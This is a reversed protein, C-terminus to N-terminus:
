RLSPRDLAGHLAPMAEPSRSCRPRREGSRSRPPAWKALGNIRIGEPGCREARHRDDSARQRLPGIGARRRLMGDVTQRVRVRRDDCRAEAASAAGLDDRGCGAAGTTRPAIGNRCPRRPRARRRTTTHRDRWCWHRLPSTLPRRGMWRSRGRRAPGAVRRACRALCPASTSASTTSDLGRRARPRSAPAVPPSQPVAGGKSM